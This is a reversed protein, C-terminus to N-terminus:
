RHTQLAKRRSCRQIALVALLVAIVVALVSVIVWLIIVNITTSSEDQELEQQASSCKVYLTEENLGYQWTSLVHLVLNAEQLAPKTAIWQGVVSKITDLSVDYSSIIKAQYAVADLRNGCCTLRSDRIHNVTFTCGHCTNKIQTVLQEM